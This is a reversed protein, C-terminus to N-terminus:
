GFIWRYEIRSRQKQLLLLLLLEEQLLCHHKSNLEMGEGLEWPWTEGTEMKWAQGKRSGIAIAHTYLTITNDTIINIKMHLQAHM